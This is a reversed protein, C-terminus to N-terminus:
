CDTGVAATSVAAKGAHAAVTPKGRAMELKGLMTAMMRYFVTSLSDYLM